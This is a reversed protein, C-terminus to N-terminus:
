KTESRMRILKTEESTLFVLATDKVSSLSVDDIGQLISIRKKIMSLQADFDDVTTLPLMTLMRKLEADSAGNDQVIQLFAHPARQFFLGASRYFDEANAGDLCGSVFLGARFGWQNGSQILKFLKAKQLRDPLAEQNCGAAGANTAVALFTHNGPHQLFESWAPECDANAPVFNM